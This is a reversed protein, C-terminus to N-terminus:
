LKLTSEFPSAPLNERNYLNAEEPNDAWAYRVKLPDKVADSWVIVKDDKIIANAWVFNGDKEAIAFGKLTNGNKSLLGTGIDTFSLILQNEKKEMSKFLPGSAVINKEGYAVKRAQLALRKGVDYKNLPHIDNWEGLDITVAMGTNPVKLIEKQQQRLVAWNSEGPESKVEMFNALQVLIFPLKEQKWQMRWNAILTEMLASYELPRKTSSEGQYWLVGQCLLKKFSCDDRQLSRSTEM